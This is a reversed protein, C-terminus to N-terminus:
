PTRREQATNGVKEPDRFSTVYDQFTTNGVKEPDGVSPPYDQFRGFDLM